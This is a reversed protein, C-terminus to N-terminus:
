PDKGKSVKVGFQRPIIDALSRGFLFDAMEMSLGGKEVVLNRLHSDYNLMESLESAANHDGAERANVMAQIRDLSCKSEHATVLELLWSINKLVANRDLRNKYYINEIGTTNWCEMARCEIPRTDYIGCSKNADDFYMCTKSDTRSKIKVIESPMCVLGGNANVNDYALEGKRITYLSTLPIAGSDVHRLDDEHLAPGGKMCCTGCRQCETIIEKKLM